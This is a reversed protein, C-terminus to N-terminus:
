NFFNKLNPTPFFKKIRKPSIELISYDYNKDVIIKAIEITLKPNITNDKILSEIIKNEKKFSKENDLFKGM